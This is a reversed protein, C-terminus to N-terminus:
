YSVYITGDHVSVDHIALYDASALGVPLDGHEAIAKQLEVILDSARMEKFMWKGTEPDRWRFPGNSPKTIAYPPMSRRFTMTGDGNDTFAQAARRMLNPGSLPDIAEVFKAMESLASSKKETDNSM